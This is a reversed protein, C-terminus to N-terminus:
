YLYSKNQEVIRYISGRKKLSHGKGIRADCLEHVLGKRVNGRCETAGGDTLWKFAVTRQKHQNLLKPLPYTRGAIRYKRVELLPQVRTVAEQLCASASRSQCRQKLDHLVEKYSYGLQLPFSYRCLLQGIPRPISGIHPVRKNTKYLTGRRM